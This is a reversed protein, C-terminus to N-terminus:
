PQKTETPARRILEWRDDRWVFYHTFVPGMNPCPKMIMLRSDPRFEVTPLWPAGGLPPLSLSESMAPRYIKGTLADVIAMMICPSGCAWQVVIYHGAFNVGPKAQEVGDQSAGEGKTVGDLIRTRFRREDPTVFLPAAPTGQFIKGVPYDEFRPAATAKPTIPQATAGATMVLFILTTACASTRSADVSQRHAVSRRFLIPAHGM